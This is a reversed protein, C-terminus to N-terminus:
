FGNAHLTVQHLFILHRNEAKFHPNQGTKVKEHVDLLSGFDHLLTMITISYM